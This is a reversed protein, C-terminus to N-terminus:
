SYAILDRIYRNSIFLTMTVWRKRCLLSFYVAIGFTNAAHSSPFGHFGGHYDNVYHLLYMSLPDHSPRPRAVLPKLLSSTIQDALAVIVVALLVPVVVDVVNRKNRILYFLLMLIIPVCCYKQSVDYFFVDSWATHNGNILFLLGYDLQEFPNM